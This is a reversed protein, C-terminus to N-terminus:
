RRMGQGVGMSLVVEWRGMLYAKWFTCFGPFGHMFEKFSEFIANVEEKNLFVRDIKNSLNGAGRRLCAFVEDSRDNVVVPLTDVLPRRM